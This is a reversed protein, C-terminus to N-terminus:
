LQCKLIFMANSMHIDIDNRTPPVYYTSCNSCIVYTAARRTAAAQWSKKTLKFIDHNDNTIIIYIYQMTAM